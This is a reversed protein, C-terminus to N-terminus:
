RAGRRRRAGARRAPGRRACRSPRRSPRPPDDDQRRSRASGVAARGAQGADLLLDGAQAGGGGIVVEQPDFTNIVNAVGIGIRCGWGECLRVAAADGDRAAQVADPGLVPEGAAFRHGLMSDPHRRAEERSLRDLAHGAAEWELSGKQPFSGPEPVGASLDLGILTHGLEGAGGTAGRYIKGGLVMGGGVGTGITLIVLDRAVMQLSEDHAEALAAVTADNDVFVPVGLREGLVERLPVNALPINNSSVVKGTAFEVVSPM